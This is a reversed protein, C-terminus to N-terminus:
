QIDSTRCITRDFLGVEPRDPRSNIGTDLPRGGYAAGKFEAVSLTAALRTRGFEREAELGWRPQALTLDNLGVHRPAASRARKQASYGTACNL